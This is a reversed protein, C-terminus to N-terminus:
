RCPLFSKKQNPNLRAEWNSGFAKEFGISFHPPRTVRIINILFIFFVYLGILSISVSGSVGGMIICLVGLLALFPSLASTYLKLFRLTPAPWCLRIFLLVSQLAALGGIVAAVIQFIVKIIDM